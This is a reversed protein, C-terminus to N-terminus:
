LSASRQIGGGPFFRGESSSWTIIIFIIFIFVDQLEPLPLTPDQPNTSADSPDLGRGWDWRDM